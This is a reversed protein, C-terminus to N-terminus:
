EFMRAWWGRKKAAPVPVIEIVKRVPDVQMVPVVGAPVKVEVLGVVPLAVKRIAPKARKTSKKAAKRKAKKM